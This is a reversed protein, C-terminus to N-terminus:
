LDITCDVMICVKLWEIQPLPIAEQLPCTLIGTDAEVLEINTVSTDVTVPPVSGFAFLFDNDVLLQKM